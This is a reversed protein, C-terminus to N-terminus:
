FLYKTCESHTATVTTNKDKLLPDGENMPEPIWKYKKNERHMERLQSIVFGTFGILILVIGVFVKWSPLFHHIILDVVVSTPIALISGIRPTHTHTHM